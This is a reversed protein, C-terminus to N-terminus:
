AKTDRFVVWRMVSYMFAAECAGAAIRSLHYQLGLETLASGVGLIFALYNITIAVAYLGAQPGVPAHSRFNLARNLVFSLGFALVYAITFALPVPLGLGSRFATLLLLDVGFTFGNILAFGLFSPAVVRSLRGPLWGVVVEMLDHFRAGLDRGNDSLTPTGGTM